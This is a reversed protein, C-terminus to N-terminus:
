GIAADSLGNLGDVYLEMLDAYADAPAGSFFQGKLIRVHDRISTILQDEFSALTGDSTEVSLELRCPQPGQICV